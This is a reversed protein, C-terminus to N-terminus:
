LLNWFEFCFFKLATQINEKFLEFKTLSTIHILNPQIALLYMGEDRSCVNKAKIKPISMNPEYAKIPWQLGLSTVGTVTEELLKAILM